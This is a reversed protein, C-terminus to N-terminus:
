RPPRVGGTGTGVYGDFTVGEAALADVVAAVQAGFQEGELCVCRGGHDRIVDVQLSALGGSPGHPRGKGRHERLASYRRSTERV